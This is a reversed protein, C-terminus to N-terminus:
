DEKNKKAKVEALREKAKKYKEKWEPHNDASHYSLRKAWFLVEDWANKLEPNMAPRVM